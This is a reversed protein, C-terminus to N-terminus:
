CPKNQALEVISFNIFITHLAQTKIKRESAMLSYILYSRSMSMMTCIIRNPLSIENKM